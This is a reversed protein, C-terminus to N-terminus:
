VTGQRFKIAAESIGLLDLLSCLRRKRTLALYSCAKIIEETLVPHQRSLFEQSSLKGIFMEKALQCGELIANEGLHKYLYASIPSSKEDTGSDGSVGDSLIKDIVPDHDGAHMGPIFDSLFQSMIVGRAKGIEEGSPTGVFYVLPADGGTLDALAELIAM